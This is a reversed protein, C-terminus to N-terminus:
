VVVLPSSGITGTSGPQQNHSPADLEQVGTGPAWWGEVLLM